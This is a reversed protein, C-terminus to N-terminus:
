EIVGNRKLVVYVKKCIKGMRHIEGFNPQIGEHLKQEWDEFETELFALLKKSCGQCSDLCLQADGSGFPLASKAERILNRMATSTDPKM